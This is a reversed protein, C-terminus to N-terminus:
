EEQSSTEAEQWRVPPVVTVEDDSGQCVAAVLTVSQIWLWDAKELWVFLREQTHPGGWVLSGQARLAAQALLLHLGRSLTEAYGGAIWLTKQAGLSSDPQAEWSETLQHPALWWVKLQNYPDMPMEGEV